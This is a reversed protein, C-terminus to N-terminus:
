RNWLRLKSEHGASEIQEDLGTKIAVPNDALAGLYGVCLFQRFCRLDIKKCGLLHRSYFKVAKRLCAQRPM